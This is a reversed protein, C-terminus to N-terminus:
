DFYNFESQKKVMKRRKYLKQENDIYGPCNDDQVIGFDFKLKYNEEQYPAFGWLRGLYGSITRRHYGSHYHMYDVVATTDFEDYTNAYEIMLDLITLIHKETTPKLVKQGKKNFKKGIRIIKARKVEICQILKAKDIDERDQYIPKDTEIQELTDTYDIKIKHVVQAEQVLKGHYYFKATASLYSYASKGPTIKDIALFCHQICDNLLEQQQPQAVSYYKQMIGRAMEWMAWHLKDYIIFKERENAKQWDMCLQEQKERWYIRAMISNFACLYAFYKVNDVVFLFLHSTM